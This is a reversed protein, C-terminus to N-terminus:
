KIKCFLKHSNVFTSPKNQKFFYKFNVDTTKESPDFSKDLAM